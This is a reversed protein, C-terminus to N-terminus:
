YVGEVKGEVELDHECDIEGSIILQRGITVV